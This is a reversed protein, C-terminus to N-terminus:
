AEPGIFSPNVEQIHSELTILNIEMLWIHPFNFLLILYCISFAPFEFSFDYSSPLGSLNPNPTQLLSDSETESMQCSELVM